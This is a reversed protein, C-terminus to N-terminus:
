RPTESWDQTVKTSARHFPWVASSAQLRTQNILLALGNRCGVFDWREYRSQPLCFRSAPIRDPKRLM